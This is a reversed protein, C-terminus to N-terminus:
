RSIDRIVWGGAVRGLKLVQKSSPVAQGAVSGSRTVRVTAEDGNVAVSEIEFRLQQSAVTAFADKLRREDDGSLGPRLTKYLALDKERIAREFRDLLQRVADTDSLRPKAAQAPSPAVVPTAAVTPPPPAAAPTTTVRAPAVPAASPLTTAAVVARAPAPTTRAAPAERKRGQAAEDALAKLRSELEASLEAIVPNRPDLEVVRSLARSAAATDGAAAAERAARAARDAEERAARARRQVDHAEANERELQLARGAASIAGDLDKLELSRRALDLQSQVAVAVLARAAGDAAGPAPERRMLMLAAGGLVLTAMVGLGVHLATRGGGADLVTSGPRSGSGSRAPARRVSSPPVTAANHASSTGAITAAPDEPSQILTQADRLSAAAQQQDLTGDLVQRCVELAGRMARGDPFRQAPGKALATEVFTILIEPLEPSLERLPTPEADTVQYLVSHMTEGNFARRGGLLEYFVAGLAFVDSSPTVREGRVQEPSMYNPTGMVTGARTMESEGLRALGFDMVKVRGNRQVHINAPKLDRHIVGTSHAYAVGDLIQEMVALKAELTDPKGRRLQQKLDEGELLEMAMFLQGNGEGFEHLIVVNPHNLRAASRAERLFRERLDVDALVGASMTKIAVFRDLVTDRAKFVEGMAGQGIRGLIEYKGIAPYAEATSREPSEAAM